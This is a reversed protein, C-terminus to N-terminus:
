CPKWAWVVSAHWSHIDHLNMLIVWHGAHMQVTSMDPRSSTILLEFNHATLVSQLLVCAIEWCVCDTSHICRTRCALKVDASSNYQGFSKEAESNCSKGYVSHIITTERNQSVSVISVLLAIHVQEQYLIAQHVKLQHTDQRAGLFAFHTGM